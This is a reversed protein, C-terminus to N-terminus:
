ETILLPFFSSYTDKGISGTEIREDWAVFAQTMREGDEVKVM